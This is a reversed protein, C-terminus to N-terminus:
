GALIGSPWTILIEPIPAGSNGSGVCAEARLQHRYPPAHESHPPDSGQTLPAPPRLDDAHRFLSAGLASRGPHPSRSQSFRATFLYQKVHSHKYEVQLSPNVCALAAVSLSVMKVRVMDGEEESSTEGHRGLRRKRNPWALDCCGVELVMGGSPRGPPYAAVTRCPPLFGPTSTRGTWSQFIHHLEQDLAKLKV